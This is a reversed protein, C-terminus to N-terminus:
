ELSNWNSHRSSKRDSRLRCSHSVAFNANVIRKPFHSNAVQFGFCGMPLFAYTKQAELYPQCNRQPFALLVTSESTNLAGLYGPRAPMGRVVHQFTAYEMSTSWRGDSFTEIRASHPGSRVLRGSRDFAAGVSAHLQIIEIKRSFLLFSFEFTSLQAHLQSLDVGAKLQLTVSTGNFEECEDLWVPLVMGLNGFPPRTDLKFSYVRSRITVVDAISFVSKFGIGKEGITDNQCTKSSHGIACLSEVDTRTFGIENTEFTLSDNTLFLDM